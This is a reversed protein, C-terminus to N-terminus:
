QLTEVGLLAAIERDTNLATEGERVRWSFRHHTRRSLRYVIVHTAGTAEFAVESVLSPRMRWRRHRHRRFWDRDAKFAERADASGVYAAAAAAVEPTVHGILIASHVSLVAAVEEDISSM